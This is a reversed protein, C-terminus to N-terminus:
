CDSCGIEITGDNMVDFSLVSDDVLRYQQGWSDSRILIGSNQAIRLTAEYGLFQREISHALKM